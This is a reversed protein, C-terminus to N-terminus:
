DEGNLSKFDGLFPIAGYRGQLYGRELNEVNRPKYNTLPYLETSGDPKKETLWVQDRRLAPEGLTTGLLNSDHTAFILQANRPNTQPNNFLDVIKLALLPHLSSELEDIILGSGTKLTDIIPVAMDFLTQTGKSEEAYELWSKSDDVAHQFFYRPRPFMRAKMEEDEDIRLDQIGLDALKVFEVLQDKWPEFFKKSHLHPFGRSFGALGPIKRRFQGANSRLNLFDWQRFWLYVPEAQRYNLLSATSLFTSNPRTVKRITEHEGVFEAGFKFQTGEREFWKQRKGRPWAYLWEEQVEKDNVALGYEFRIGGSVFTVEFVSATADGIGWGFRQRPVGQGEEWYGASDITSAFWEFASLVNSKGSANAGYIAAVPLLPKKYSPVARPRVDDRTGLSAAEMSLVQEEWISRHNSVRFEILM